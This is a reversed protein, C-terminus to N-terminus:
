KARLWYTPNKRMVFSSQPYAFLPMQRISNLARMFILFNPLRDRVGSAIVKIAAEKMEANIKALKEWEVDCYQIAAM